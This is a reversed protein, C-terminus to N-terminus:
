IATSALAFFLLAVLNLLTIPISSVLMAIAGGRGGLAASRTVGIIGSIIATFGSGAALLSIVVLAYAHPTYGRLPESSAVIIAVILLLVSGIATWRTVHLIPNANFWYARAYGEGFMLQSASPQKRTSGM